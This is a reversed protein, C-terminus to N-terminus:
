EVAFRDLPETNPATLGVPQALVTKTRQIAVLTGVPRRSLLLLPPAERQFIQRVRADGVEDVRLMWRALVARHREGCRTMAEDEVAHEGDGLVLRLEHLAPQRRVLADAAVPREARESVRRERVAAREEVHGGTKLNLQRELHVLAPGGARLRD